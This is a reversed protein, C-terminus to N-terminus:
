INNKYWSITKEVGEEFSTQPSWGLINKVKDFSVIRYGLEGEREPIYEINTGPILKSITEAVDKVSIMDKGVLNFIENDAKESMAMACGDALDKVFIFQRKQDGSGRITLPNGELAKKIFIPIVNFRSGPGYPIGFRLITFNLDYMNSFDQCLYEGFFKTTTYVHKTDNTFLSSEDVNTELSANYVWITSAYIVKKVNNLRSAELINYTGLVNVDFTLKYNKYALSADAIAGLHYVVDVGALHQNLADLNNLDVEYWKFNSSPPEVKDIIVIEHGLEHLANVLHFGVFGSGGTVAIKM